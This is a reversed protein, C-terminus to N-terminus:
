NVDLTGFQTTGLHSEVLGKLSWQQAFSVGKVAEKCRQVHPSLDTVTHLFVNDSLRTM